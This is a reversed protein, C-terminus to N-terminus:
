QGKTYSGAGVRGRCYVSECVQQGWRQGTALVGRILVWCTFIHQSHARPQGALQARAQNFLLPREPMTHYASLMLPSPIARQSNTGKTKTQSPM